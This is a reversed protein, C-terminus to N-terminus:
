RRFGRHSAGSRGSTITWLQSAASTRPLPNRASQVRAISARVWAIGGTGAPTSLLRDTTACGRAALRKGVQTTSGAISVEHWREDPAVRADRPATPNTRSRETHTQGMPPASFASGRVGTANRDFM